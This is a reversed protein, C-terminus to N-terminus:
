NHVQLWKDIPQYKQPVKVREVTVPTASSLSELFAVLESKESATLGLPALETALPDDRGGGQDYFEVVDKLTAVTGNHM